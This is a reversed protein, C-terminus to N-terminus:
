IEDIHEYSNDDKLVSNYINDYLFINNNLPKVKRIKSDDNKKMINNKKRHNTRFIHDMLGGVGYNCNRFVHHNDHFESWNKYNTHSIIITNTIAIFIWIHVVLSTASLLIPGLIVPILNGYLDIKSMYLAGMGIPDKLEHHMMHYKYLYKTHFLRHTTYFFLDTLLYSFFLDMTTNLITIEKCNYNVFNPLIILGPFSYIFINKFVTPFIKIYLEAYKITEKKKIKNNLKKNDCFDFFLTVFSWFSYTLTYNLYYEFM